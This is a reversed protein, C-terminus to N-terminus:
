KIFKYVKNLLKFNELMTKLSTNKELLEEMLRPSISTKISSSKKNKINTNKIITPHKM